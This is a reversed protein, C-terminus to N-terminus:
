RRVPQFNATLSIGPVPKELSPVYTLAPQINLKNKASSNIDWSVLFTLGSVFGMWMATETSCYLFNSHSFMCGITGALTYGALCCTTIGSAKMWKRSSDYQCSARYRTWSDADEGPTSLFNNEMEIWNLRSRSLINVGAAGASVLAGSAALIGEFIIRMAVGENLGDSVMSAQHDTYLMLGCGLVTAGLGAALEYNSTRLDRYAKSYKFQLEPSAPNELCSPIRQAHVPLVSLASILLITFITRLKM